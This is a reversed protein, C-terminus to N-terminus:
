RDQMMSTNEFSAAAVRVVLLLRAWLSTTSILIPIFQQFFHPLHHLGQAALHSLPYVLLFLCYSPTPPALILRFLLFHLPQLPHIMLCLVLKIRPEMRRQMSMTSCKHQPSPPHVLLISRMFEELSPVLCLHKCEVIIPGHNQQMAKSHFM